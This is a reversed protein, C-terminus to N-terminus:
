RESLTGIKREKREILPFNQKEGRGAKDKYNMMEQEKLV